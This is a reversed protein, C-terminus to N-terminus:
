SICIRLLTLAFMVSCNLFYLLYILAKTKEPSRTNYHSTTENPTKSELPLTMIRYHYLFYLM